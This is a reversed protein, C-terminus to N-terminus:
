EITGRRSRLDRHGRLCEPGCLVGLPFEALVPNAFCFRDPQDDAIGSGAEIRCSDPGELGRPLPVANMPDSVGQSMNRAAPVRDDGGRDTLGEVLGVAGM